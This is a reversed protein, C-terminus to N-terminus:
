LWQPLVHVWWSNVTV